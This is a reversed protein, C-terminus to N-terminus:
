AGVRIIHAASNFHIFTNLIDCNIWWWGCRMPCSIFSSKLLTFFITIENSILWKSTNRHDWVDPGKSQGMGWAGQRMRDSWFQCFFIVQFSHRFCTPCFINHALNGFSSSCAYRGQVPLWVAHEAAIKEGDLQSVVILGEKIFPWEWMREWIPKVNTLRAIQSCIAVHYADWVAPGCRDSKQVPSFWACNWM